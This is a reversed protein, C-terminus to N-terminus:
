YSLRAKVRRLYEQADPGVPRRKEGGPIRLVEGWGKFLGGVHWGSKKLYELSWLFATTWFYRVPLYKWAVKSKNVWMGRLKEPRTLRGAPSEKHLIVVRNDYRISFGADLARYSLDYEEMGYFFNEPYLGVRQFVTRRIAHAAGSFYATEFHPWDRREAFRKHPFANVQMEGTSHYYIKFAVIGVPRDSDHSEFAPVIWRLADTDRFLADDDLFVLYPAQSLGIAYNRGRSVGLNEPAVSYRFPLAAHEAVFEELAQYSVTSRNNVFIVEEVWRDLEELGAINRALELADEPRNYTIIVLSLPKM